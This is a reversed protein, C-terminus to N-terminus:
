NTLEVYIELDGTALAAAGNTLTIGFALGAGAKEVVINPGPGEVDTVPNITVRISETLPIVDGQFTRPEPQFSRPLAVAGVVTSGFLGLIGAAGAALSVGTVRVVRESVQVIVPAGTFAM